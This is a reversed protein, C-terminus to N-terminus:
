TLTIALFLLSRTYTAAWRHRARGIRIVEFKTYYVRRMISGTFKAFELGCFIFSLAIALEIKIQFCIIKEQFDAMQYLM